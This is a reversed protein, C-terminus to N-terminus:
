ASKANASAKKPRPHGAKRLAKTLLSIEAWLEEPNSVEAKADIAERIQRVRQPAMRGAREHDQRVREAAMVDLYDNLQAKEEDTLKEAVDPPISTSLEPLSAISKQVAGRKEKDYMTRILSLTGRQNKIYM